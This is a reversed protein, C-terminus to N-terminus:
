AAARVMEVFSTKLSAGGVLAGDIDPHSMFDAINDPNASGGYQVRIKQAVEEGFIDAIAGRVTLGIIRGADAPNATKGTGIAWIPE